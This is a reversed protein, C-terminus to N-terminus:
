KSILQSIFSLINIKSHNSHCDKCIWLTHELGTFVRATLGNCIYCPYYWGMKLRHPHFSWNGCIDYKTPLSNM